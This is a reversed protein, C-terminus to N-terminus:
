KLKLWKLIRKIGTPREEKKQITKQLVSIHHRIWENWGRHKDLEEAGRLTMINQINLYEQGDKLAIIKLIEYEKKPTSEIIFDYGQILHQANEILSKKIEETIM